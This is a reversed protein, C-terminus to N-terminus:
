NISYESYITLLQGNVRRFGVWHWVHPDATKMILHHVGVAEEHSNIVFIHAGESACTAVANEWNEQRRHIKYHGIGPALQYGDPPSSSKPPVPSM